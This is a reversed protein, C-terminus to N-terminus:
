NYDFHANLYKTRLAIKSSKLIHLADYRKETGGVGGQANRLM